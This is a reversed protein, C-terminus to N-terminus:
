RRGRVSIPIKSSRLSAAYELTNGAIARGKPDIGPAVEIVRGFEDKITDEVKELAKVIPQAVVTRLSDRNSDNLRQIQQEITLEGLEWGVGSWFGKRGELIKLYADRDIIGLQYKLDEVQWEESVRSGLATRMHPPVMDTLEKIQRDIGRLQSSYRDVNSGTPATPIQIPTLTRKLDAEYKEKAIKTQAETGFMSKIAYDVYLPNKDTKLTPVKKIREREAKLASQYASTQSMYHTQAQSVRSALEARRGMLIEIERARGEGFELYNNRWDGKTNEYKGERYQFMEDNIKYTAELQKYKSDAIDAELKRQRDLSKNQEVILSLHEQSHKETDKIRELIKDYWDSEIELERNLYQQTELSKNYINDAWGFKNQYQADYFSAAFDFSDRISAPSVSKLSERFSDLSIKASLAESSYEGYINKYHAWTSSLAQITENATGYGADYLLKSHSSFTEQQQNAQDLQLGLTDAISFLVGATESATKKFSQM